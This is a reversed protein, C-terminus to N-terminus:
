RMLKVMARKGDSFVWLPIRPAIGTERIEKDFKDMMADDIGIREYDALVSIQPKFLTSKPLHADAAQNVMHDKDHGRAVSANVFHVVRRRLMIETFIGDYVINCLSGEDTEPLQSAWSGETHGPYFLASQVVRGEPPTAGRVILAEVEGSEAVREKPMEFTRPELDRGRHYQLFHHRGGADTQIELIPCHNPDFNGLGRVSEYFDVVSSMGNRLDATLLSGNSEIEGNELTSYNNYRREEIQSSFIHYRGPVANDAVVTRNHGNIKEWYSYSIDGQFESKNGGTLECFRQVSGARITKLKEEFEKEGDGTIHENLAQFFDPRRNHRNQKMVLKAVDDVRYSDLLGSVGAYDQPHESRIM